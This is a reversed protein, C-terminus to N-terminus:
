SALRGRRRRPVRRDLDAGDQGGEALRNKVASAGNISARRAELSHGAFVPATM